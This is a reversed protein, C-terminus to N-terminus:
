SVYFVADQRLTVEVQAHTVVRADEVVFRGGTYWERERWHIHDPALVEIRVAKSGARLVFLVETDAGEEVRLWAFEEARARDASFSALPLDLTRGPPFLQLADWVSLSEGVGRYLEPATSHAEVLARLLSRAQRTGKGTSVLERVEGKLELCRDPDSIWEAITKAFEVFNRDHRYRARLRGALSLADGVSAVPGLNM